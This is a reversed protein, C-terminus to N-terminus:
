QKLFRICIPAKVSLSTGTYKPIGTKTNLKFVTLNDSRQNGVLMWKGTPDINFNRPIEGETSVHAVPQFKLKAGLIEFSFVAISNHGRNSVYVYKGNKSCRVEATSNQTTFSEPLTTREALKKHKGTKADYSFVAIESTLEYNVFFYDLTPHFTLHRPGGGPKTPIADLFKFKANKSSVDVSYVMIKDMGLDAVYARKNDPSMNISHAHPGTQRKPNISTGQHQIFSSPSALSGDQNIPILEISGGGYNALLAYKGTADISVHCPGSGGSTQENVPTLLGKKRDINYSAIAGYNEKKSKVAGGVAYLTKGNPHVEVFGPRPISHCEAHKKIDGTDADFDLVYVAANEKSSVSNGIFVWYKNAAPSINLSFFLTFVFSVLAILRTPHYRM